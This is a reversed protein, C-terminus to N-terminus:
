IIYEQMDYTVYNEDYFTIGLNNKYKNLAFYKVDKIDPEESTKALIANKIYDEVDDINIYGTSITDNYREGITELFENIISLRQNEKYNNKVKEEHNKYNTESLEFINPLPNSFKLFEVLNDLKDSHLIENGIVEYDHIFKKLIQDSNKYLFQYLFKIFLRYSDKKMPYNKDTIGKSKLYEKLIKIDINSPGIYESAYQIAPTKQIFANIINIPSITSDFLVYSLITSIKDDKSNIMTYLQHNAEALISEVEHFVNSHLTSKNINKTQEKKPPAFTSFGAKEDKHFYQLLHVIEHVITSRLRDIEYKNNNIITLMEEKKRNIRIKSFEDDANSVDDSINVILMFGINSREGLSLSHLHKLKDDYDGVGSRAMEEIEQDSFMQELVNRKIKTKEVDSLLYFKEFLKYNGPFSNIIEKQKKIADIVEETIENIKNENLEIASSAIKFFNNSLKYLKDFNM